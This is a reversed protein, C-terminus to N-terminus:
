RRVEDVAQTGLKLVHFADLVATADELQDDIANKYGHFPDLTAVQVRTRFSDGRDKLWDRYANGTRGPVLDLLRAKTKGTQPDRTLDVMGTMAKPGRKRPDAHHWIHEDVGLITVDDFRSDDAAMQELLPKINRWVTWWGCGLQRAIGAVSAHEFRIQRVAWWCARVTLKARPEAIPCPETFAGTPCAPEVCRWTRARWRIRVPRGFCPIDILVRDRRGRWAAIVGCSPCGPAGPATEVTVMLRDGAVATASAGVEIVHLGDLGVLVDCRDCYGTRAACCCTTEPM